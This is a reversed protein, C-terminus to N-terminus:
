DHHEHKKIGGGAEELFTITAQNVLMADLYASARGEDFDKHDKYMEQARALEEAFLKPDAVINNEKAITDLVLQLHARKRADPEFDKQIDARTKKIHELYENFSAGSMTIDHEFQAIMRDIEYAVLLDPAEITTEAVIADLMEMRKKEVARDDKEHLLNHRLRDTFDAMDKFDGFNKIDAEIIEPVDKDEIKEISPIDKQDTGSEALTQQYRLKALQKLADKVEVDTVITEEQDALIKKAIKTYDPLKIEPMVATTISFNLPSGSGIKTIQINPRGIAEVKHETIADVYVDMMALQAMEELVAMEGVKGVIASEPAKGKRFGDMEVHEGIRKLAKARLPILDDWAIEGTIKVQSKELTEVSTTAKM